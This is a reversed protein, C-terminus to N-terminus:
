TTREEHNSDARALHWRRTVIRTERIFQLIAIRSDKEKFVQSLPPSGKLCNPRSFSYDSCSLLLHDATETTGCRYLESDAKGIRKLYTKLYGHSLKLMYYASSITRECNAKIAYNPQWQYRQFYNGVRHRRREKVQNFELEWAQNTKEKLLKISEAKSLGSHQKQRRKIGQLQTQEKRNLREANDV